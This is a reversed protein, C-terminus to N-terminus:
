GRRARVLPVAAAPVVVEVGPRQLAAKFARSRPWTSGRIASSPSSTTARRCSSTSTASTPSWVRAARAAADEPVHVPRARDEDESSDDRTVSADAYLAPKEIYDIAMRQGTRVAEVGAEVVKTAAYGEWASPGVIEGRELGSIWAQLEATYAAGFRDRWDPPVPSSTRAGTASRVPSSRIRCRPRAWRARGARLPRRLRVPLQRLVRRDVPDRVGTTFVAFQPDQLHPFAMPTRKPPIVQVATIEEGLLWRTIDVEHIMSDTM